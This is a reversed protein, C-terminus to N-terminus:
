TGGPEAYQVDRDDGFENRDGGLARIYNEPLHDKATYPFLKNFQDGGWIGRGALLGQIDRAGEKIGSTIGPAPNPLKPIPIPIAIPPRFPISIPLRLILPINLIGSILPLINPILPIRPILPIGPIKWGSQQNILSPFFPALAVSAQLDSAQTTSGGEWREGNRRLRFERGFHEFRGSEAPPLAPVIDREYVYRFAKNKLFPDDNCAAAFDPCGIMPQAFTYVARLKDKIFSYRDKSLLMVAMLAAMAGGLSHGTIYLAELPQLRQRGPPNNVVSNEPNLARALADEVLNRTARVNRYFGAHIYFDGSTEGIKLHFRRHEVDASVLWNLLSLPQTGRYCLIVVKGDESEVLFATSDILMGDVYQAVMRCRNKELGMRTMILSLTDSDSYAYASCTALVHAITNDPCNTSNLLTDELNEYTPRFGYTTVTGDKEYQVALDKYSVGISDREFRMAPSAAVTGDGNSGNTM